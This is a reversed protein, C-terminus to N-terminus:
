PSSGSTEERGVRVHPRLKQLTAEGIGRVRGLDEVRLFPREEIIALATVEGVGPLRMLEDRAAQNVDVTVGPRVKATGMVLALEAEEKRLQRREEPLREWDTKAWAGLGRKSAQLELDALRAKWEEAPTGDPRSRSVGFARALGVQVLVESLDRGDALTVFAYYRRFKPDGRGDAFATHVWFPQALHQEVFRKGEEGFEKAAEIDTIGFWRRQDRLRRANSDDGQVNTEFCDVGYLRITVERGDERIVPFSDGDAWPEARFRCPGLDQLEPSDVGLAVGAAIIWAAGGCGLLGNLRM